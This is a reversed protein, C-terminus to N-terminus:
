EGFKATFMGPQEIVTYGDPVAFLSPDQEGPTFDSLQETVTSGDPETTMRFVLVDFQPSYWTDTTRLQPQGDEGTPGPIPMSIREGHAEVGNILDLGLDTTGASPAANVASSRGPRVGPTILRGKIEVPGQLPELPADADDAAEEAQPAPPLPRTTIRVRYATKTEPVLVYYAGAYPDTIEVIEPSPDAGPLKSQEANSARADWALRPLDPPDPGDVTASTAGVGEVLSRHETASFPQDVVVDPASTPAMVQATGQFGDATATGNAFLVHSNLAEAFVPATGFLTVAFLTTTLYKKRILQFM